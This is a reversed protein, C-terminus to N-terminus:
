NHAQESSLYLCLILTTKIGAMKLKAPFLSFDTLNYRNPNDM